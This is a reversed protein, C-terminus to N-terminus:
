VYVTLLVLEASLGVRTSSVPLGLLENMEVKLVVGGWFISRSAAAMAAPPPRRARPPDNVNVWVRAMWAPSGVGSVLVAVTVKVRAWFRPAKGLRIVAWADALTVSNGCRTISLTTVLPRSTTWGPSRAE